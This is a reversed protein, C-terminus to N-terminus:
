LYVYLCLEVPFLSVSFYLRWIILSFLRWWGLFLSFKRYPFFFRRKTAFANTLNVKFFPYTYIFFNVRIAQSILKVIREEQGREHSIVPPCSLLLITSNWIPIFQTGRMASKNKVVTFRLQYSTKLCVMRLVSSLLFPNHFHCVSCIRPWWHCM